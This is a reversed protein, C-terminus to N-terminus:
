FTYENKKLYINGISNLVDGKYNTYGSISMYQLSQQDFKLASNLQNNDYYNNAVNSTILSLLTYNNIDKGIKLGQYLTALEQSRNGTGKYLQSLDNYIFGLCSLRAKTPDNEKSFLTILWINKECDENELIKIGELFYQLSLAYNKLQSLVWGAQDFADAEWLKLHLNKALALEQEHFYLSSDRNRDQYHWGLSRSLRMRM